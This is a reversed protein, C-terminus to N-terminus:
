PWMWVWLRVALMVLTAAVFLGIAIAIFVGLKEGLGLRAWSFAEAPPTIVPTGTDLPTGTLRIDIRGSDAGSPWHTVIPHEAGALEDETVSVEHVGLRKMVAAVMRGEDSTVAEGM